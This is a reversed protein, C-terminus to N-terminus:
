WETVVKTFGPRDAKFWENLDGYPSSNFRSWTGGKKEIWGALEDCAQEGAQDNDLALVVEAQAFLHIWEKKFNKTGLIGVAPVGSVVLSLTDLEGEAIWVDEDPPGLGLPNYLHVSEGKPSHYRPHCGMDCRLREYWAGKRGLTPIVVHGDEIRIGYEKLERESFGRSVAFTELDLLPPSM